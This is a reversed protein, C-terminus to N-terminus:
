GRHAHRCAGAHDVVAGDGRGAAARDAQDAAAHGIVAQDQGVVAVDIEITGVLRHEVEVAVAQDVDLDGAFELLPQVRVGRDGVAAGNCASPPVTTSCAEAALSRNVSRTLLEPTIVAPPMLVSPPATRSTAVPPLVTLLPLMSTDPTCPPLACTSDSALTPTVPVM